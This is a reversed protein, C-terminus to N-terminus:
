ASRPSPRRRPRRRRPVARDFGVAAIRRERDSRADDIYGQENRAAAALGDELVQRLRTGAEYTEAPFGVVRTRAEHTLQELSPWVTGDRRRVPARCGAVGHLLLCAHAAADVEAPSVALLLAFALDEATVGALLDRWGGRTTPHARGVQGSSLHASCRACLRRVVFGPCLSSSPPTVVYLRRTRARCAPRAARPVCRGSPTLPGTYVHLPGGPRAVLHAGDGALTLAQEAIM